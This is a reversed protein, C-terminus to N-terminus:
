SGVEWPEVQELQEFDFYRGTNVEFIGDPDQTGETAEIIDGVSFGLDSDWGMVETIRWFSM